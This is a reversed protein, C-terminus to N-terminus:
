APQVSECLAGRGRVDSEIRAARRADRQDELAARARVLHARVSDATLDLLAAIDALPEDLVDKLILVSRRPIPLEAFRSVATRIADDRMMLEVADPAAADVVGDAAEIPEAARIARARLLDLARNHAIRFLWGRLMTVNEMEDLAILAKALTDQM